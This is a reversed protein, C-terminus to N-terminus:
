KLLVIKRTAAAGGASLRVFYVGSSVSRGRADRGSWTVTRSGAESPGHFLTAVLAGSIGYVSVDVESSAVPLTFTLTTVPNFPNPVNQGLSVRRGIGGGDGSVGVPIERGFNGTRAFDHRFTPWPAGEGSSYVGSLDWAYITMDMGAVVVDTAGDGDLDVVTPTCFITDGTQIPWGNLINGSADYAFVKGDNAGVVIELGPNGDLDAVAASSCSGVGMSRPWGSLVEGEYTWVTVSGDSGAMVIELDGDGDMDALSPSPPFDGELYVAKPWGALVQGSSSLLYILTDVTAAVVELQDDLDVDGVAPSSQLSGSLVAPWGPTASGDAEFCYLRQSRSPVLVELDGDADMDALAPSAYAWAANLSAFVGTTAPNGDGDIIESGDGRWAYLMGDACPLVVDDFGDGTLDGLAPTAWCFRGTTVPWGPLVSADEGNWAFVEYVPNDPTGVDGWAAGVIEPYPDGDLEGVVLSSRYGGTGEVAYVGNTRPDGDGDWYEVGNHHWCYVDGSGVLLEPDGDLDIDTLAPTGYNAEGGPLPWGPVSPPNTSIELLGSLPGDNGSLDVAAVRYYYRHNEQLGSDSFYATREIIGDNARVFTSEPDDSRYVNYGWLDDETRPIWSLSITTGRVTGTLSDPAGPGELDFYHVWAKGDEDRLELKFPLTIPESVTFCFGGEGAAVAGAAIDGWTDASDTIAVEGPMHQLTGSVLDADGNGENLIEITLTVTDGPDPVGNGGVGDDVMNRYQLLVPRYVRLSFSSTWIALSDTAFTVQCSAEYENPTDSSVSVAFPADFQIQTLDEIDGLYETGDAVAVHPDAIALTATVGSAAAEGGNGVTIDLEVTEGAEVLGNANGQSQGLSDDDATWAVLALHPGESALVEVTGEYPYCNRATAAITMTGTTRPTFALTVAGSADTRGTAYVEDGKMVCVLANDVPAPNGVSVVLETAGLPVSGEHLVTLPSLGATRLPADPDGLYLYSMQTWRDTNDYRSQPVYPAKAAACTVGAEDSGLAYLAEFWEYYYRAVAWPFAYRSPGFVASAGGDPDNLLHEAICDYEVSATACNLMWIFGCRDLGNHLADVDQMTVYQEFSTRLVDKNAHGAHTAIAYGANLSDIAAVRTLPYSQPYPEYNQYLLSAHVDSPVLPLTPEVIDGAGDMAIATGPQWDYPFIVEAMYLDRAAFLSDATREYALAKSVFTEAEIANAVSARGVFVDSYLDCSDGPSSANVYAEGMTGDGDDNWTGDLDSYYLDTPIHDGGYYGSWIYRIPVVDTDGGLLVYTTGWSAYADKLFLRIREATDCGGPYNAEIWSVTRVVAPLGKKTKWDALMQFRTQFEDSTVIVYEVPSGELSPTYRPDFGLPGVEEVVDAPRVIAGKLDEPNVVLRSVLSRYLEHSAASLRLRPEATDVGPGLALEVAIDPALVLRGSRPAYQLPYVAVSAIRYGGLFGDGLYRVRSPPYLADSGYIRPDPAVAIPTEGIPTELMAPAVRHAGPLEQETLLTITVDQVRSDPPIVFRILRVPLDPEGPASISSLGHVTLRALGDAETEIVVDSPSVATAYSPNKAAIPPGVGLLALALVPALLERLHM